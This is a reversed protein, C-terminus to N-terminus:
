YSRGFYALSGNEGCKICHGSKQHAFPIVRSTAGKSEEKITEECEKRGCFFAKVIKRSEIAKIFEKWSKVDEISEALRKKSSKLLAEQIGEILVSCRKQLENFKVTEKEGTDRRVAIVHEKELDKPGIEIRLPVGKMEWENFKWGPSYGDREDLLVSFDKKLKAELEKCKKLVKERSDEFLIPVIVIQIPAINPPLVLGKDDGHAMIIAGIMRTSVGWSTQWPVHSQGDKGLFSINFARAFNQGLNHSTGMQLCKGDPMVAELATTYAAGAFKEAESKKGTIVAIALQKEILATYIELMDLTQKDAEKETEHVTHGEQWLFERTRLFPKPYKFEWRVVNCWQNILLPLDRWSRVWKSFSDYMITESTPRIALKESLETDGAMTVWAVEPSFGEVHEAEKKFLSEPIFIPFYANKVGLEKFKADLLEQIKEWIAYSYPKFVMCGSVLTYDALDAKAVVQTYWESFDKEKSVTIGVQKEQKSM